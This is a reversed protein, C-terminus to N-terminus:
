FRLCRCRRKPADERLAQIRISVSITTRWPPLIDHGKRFAVPRTKAIVVRVAQAPVIMAVGAAARDGRVDRDRGARRGRQRDRCAGRGRVERLFDTVAAYRCDYGM